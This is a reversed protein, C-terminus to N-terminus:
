RAGGYAPNYTPQANAQKVAPKPKEGKLGFVTRYGVDAAVLGPYGGLYGNITLAVPIGLYKITEKNMRWLNDKVHRINGRIDLPHKVFYETTLYAGVFIPNGIILGAAARLAKKAFTPNPILKGAYEFIKSGVIGVLSGVTMEDMLDVASTKKKKFLSLISKGAVFALGTLPANIGVAAYGYLTAAITAIGHTLYSLPSYEKTENRTPAKALKKELESGQAQKETEKNVLNDLAM